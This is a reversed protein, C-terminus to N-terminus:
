RQERGMAGNSVTSGIILGLRLSTATELSRHRRIMLRAEGASGEPFSM